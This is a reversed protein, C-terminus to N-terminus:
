EHIRRDRWHLLYKDGLFNILTFLAIGLLTTTAIAAFVFAMNYRDTAAFIVYGLGQSKGSIGAFMEGVIAGLVSNGAAVKAGTVFHPLAHPLQLKMLTQWRTSGYLAFLDQQDRPISTMGETGNTIIPFLSIITAVLVVAALGEGIWVVIVPAIAVIPVTQLFIAYPFFSRRITASQSFLMAIIIGLCLSAAFGLLAAIATNGTAALLRPMEAWAEEGVRWPSPLFIPPVQYLDVLFQWIALVIVLSATPYIWRSWNRGKLYM